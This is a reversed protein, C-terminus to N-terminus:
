QVNSMATNSIDQGSIGNTAWAQCGYVTYTKPVLVNQVTFSGGLGASTYPGTQTVYSSTSGNGSRFLM